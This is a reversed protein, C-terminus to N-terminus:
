ECPMNSAVMVQQEKPVDLPNIYLHFDNKQDGKSYKLNTFDTVVGAERVDLDHFLNSIEEVHHWVDESLCM